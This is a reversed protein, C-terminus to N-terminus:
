FMEEQKPPEPKVTDKPDGLKDLPLSLNEAIQLM